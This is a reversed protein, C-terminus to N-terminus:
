HSDVEDLAEHQILLVEHRQGPPGFVDIADTVVNCVHLRSGIKVKQKSLFLDRRHFLNRRDAVAGSCSERFGLM